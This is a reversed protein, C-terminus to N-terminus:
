WNVFKATAGFTSIVSGGPSATECSASYVTFPFVFGSPRIVTRIEGPRSVILSTRGAFSPVKLTTTGSFGPGLWTSTWTRSGDPLSAWAERLMWSMGATVVSWGAGCSTTSCGAFPPVYVFEGTVTAPWTSM